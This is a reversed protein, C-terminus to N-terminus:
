SRFRRGYRTLNLTRLLDEDFYESISVKTSINEGKIENNFVIAWAESETTWAIDAITMGKALRDAIKETPWDSGASCGQGTGKAVIEGVMVWGVSPHHTLGTLRKDKDWLDAKIPAVPLEDPSFSVTQGVTTSSKAKETVLIWQGNLYDVCVVRRKRKWADAVWEEPFEKTFKVQQEAPEDNSEEEQM